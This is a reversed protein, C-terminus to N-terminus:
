YAVQSSLNTRKDFMTLLFGEIKLSRNYSRKVLRITNLLETIGELAYYECQVPVLVSQTATLSNITLMGLSPPCDILIFQYDAKIQELAIKLRKERNDLNVLEVEAGVLKINSPALDLMPFETPHIINDIDTKGILAHYLNLKTSNKDCGVGSTTNAQPDTDILLTKKGNAALCAALNIATTTKGVGGKQNVITIIRSM